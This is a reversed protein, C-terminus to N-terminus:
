YRQLYPSLFSGIAYMNFNHLAGSLIIWWMTPIQLVLLLPSGQRRAAGIRHEEAAGRPPEPIWLSLVGLVLGPLAAVFFAARWGWLDAVNGSVIFSLGLGFPLGLMFISIARARQARPFLDGLLSNATPACTAEGIGVGLRMLFLSWFNWAL